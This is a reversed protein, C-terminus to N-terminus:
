GPAAADNRSPRSSVRVTCASPIVSANRRVSAVVLRDFVEIATDRVVTVVHLTPATSQHDLAPHGGGEDVRLLLETADAPEAIQRPEHDREVVSDDPQGACCLGCLIM